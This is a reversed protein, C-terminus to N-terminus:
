LAIWTPKADMIAQLDVQTQNENRFQKRYPTWGYYNGQDVPRGAEPWGPEAQACHEFPSWHGMSAMRDHLNIADEITLSGDFKTFTTRAAKATAVKLLLELPHRKRDEEEIGPLHWEGWARATPVSALYGALMRYALVQFEPMAAPHARLAFFNVMETATALVTIHSWPEIVRNALSKHLGFNGMSKAFFMAEKRCDHWAIKSNKLADHELEASAQMGRENLAWFEPEAPQASIAELMKDLPIARSSAANRSFVRHTMFESHIFRPYTLLFSTIRNGVPNISDAIIRTTIM